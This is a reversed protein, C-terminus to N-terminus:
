TLQFRRRHKNEPLASRVLGGSFTGAATFSVLSLVGDPRISEGAAAFGVTLLAIIIAGATLAETYILPAKRKGAAAVGACAASLFSLLSSIYGISAEPLKARCVIVSAAATGILACICWGLFAPALFRLDRYDQPNKESM